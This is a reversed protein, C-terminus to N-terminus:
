EHKKELERGWGRPEFIRLTIGSAYTTSTVLQLHLADPLDAFMAVGGGYAVPQTIIVYKNILQARSLAQAFRAGGWAIIEGDPQSRLATIEDELDGSAITSEPWTAETLTKSFVFTVDRM